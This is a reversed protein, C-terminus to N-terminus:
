GSLSSHVRIAHPILNTNYTVKKKIKCKKKERDPHSIRKMCLKGSNEGEDGDCKTRKGRPQAPGGEGLWRAQERRKPM